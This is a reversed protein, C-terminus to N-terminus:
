EDEIELHQGTDNWWDELEYLVDVLQPCRAEGIWEAPDIRTWTTHDFHHKHHTEAHSPYDHANDYRFSPRNAPGEIGAHYSYDTMQFVARGREDHIALTADVDVFLGHSCQVRGCIVLEPPDDELTFDLGNRVVFGSSQFMEMSATLPGPQDGPAAAGARKTM